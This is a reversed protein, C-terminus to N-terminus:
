RMVWRWDRREIQEQLEKIRKVIEQNIDSFRKKRDVIKVKTPFIMKGFYISIPFLRIFKAQRPLAKDTGKIYAPIIPLNTKYSLFGAGGKVGQWDEKRTGQPFLAVIEGRKLIGIAKRLAKFDSSARSLPIAGLATILKAFLFNRFLDRRALFSVKRPCAIGIVVPDLFSIHNSVIICGGKKPINEIGKIELRFLIKFLISTLWRLFSYLM